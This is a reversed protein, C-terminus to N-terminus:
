EHAVVDDRDDAPTDVRGTQLIPDAAVGPASVPTFAAEEADIHVVVVKAYVVHAAPGGGVGIGRESGSSHTATGRRGGGDGGAHAGCDLSRRCGDIENDCARHGVGVDSGNGLRPIDTVHGTAAVRSDVQVLVVGVVTSPVKQM